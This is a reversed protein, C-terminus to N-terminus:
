KVGGRTVIAGLAKSESPSYDDYPEDYRARNAVTRSQPPIVGFTAGRYIKEREVNAPPSDILEVKGPRNIEALRDTEGEWYSTTGIDMRVGCGSCSGVIFVFLLTAILKPITVLGSDPTFLSTVNM